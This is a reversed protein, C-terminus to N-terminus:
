GDKNELAKQAEISSVFIGKAVREVISELQKIRKSCKVYMWESAFYSEPCANNIRIYEQDNLIDSM